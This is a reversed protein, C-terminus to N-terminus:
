SGLVQVLGSRRIRRAARVDATLWVGDSLAALAVYVADYGSLEWQGAFDAALALLEHGNGVRAMGLAEVLLLAEQVKSSQSGPLRCLVALLENMFLDPIAYPSPEREIEALVLAAEEVLPEDTVFWKIAVSADLVIM